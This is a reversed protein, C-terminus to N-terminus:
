LAEESWVANARAVLASSAAPGWSGAPYPRPKDALRQWGQLIPDTWRWAAEVEDRRMFHPLDKAEDLVQKEGATLAGFGESNVKDGHM